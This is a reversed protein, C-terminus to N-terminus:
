TAATFVLPNIREEIDALREQLTQRHQPTLGVQEFEEMIQALKERNRYEEARRKNLRPRDLRITRISYHGTATKATVTGNSHTDWHADHDEVCPDLFRIGTAYQINTPWYNWKCSNCKSCCWYLNSYVNRLHSFDLGLSKPPHLPRHHDVEGAEGDLFYYEHTLCYACRFQFDPRLYLDRYDLPDDLAPVNPSRQFIM